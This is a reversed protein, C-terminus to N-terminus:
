LATDNFQRGEPTCVRQSSVFASNMRGNSLGSTSRMQSNLGMLSSRNPFIRKLFQATLPPYQYLFLIPDLLMNLCSITYLLKRYFVPDIKKMALILSIADPLTVFIFFTLMIPIAVKFIKSKQRASARAISRNGDVRKFTKTRQKIARFVFAYCSMGFFIILFDLLLTFVIMLRVFSEFGYIVYPIPVLLFPVWLIVAIVKVRRETLMARYRLPKLGAITRDVIMFGNALYCNVAVSVFAVSVLESSLTGDTTWLLRFYYVTTPPIFFLESLSLNVILLKQNTAGRQVSKLLYLVTIHFFLATILIGGAACSSYLLIAEKGMTCSAVPTTM